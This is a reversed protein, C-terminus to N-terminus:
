SPTRSGEGEAFRKLARLMRENEARFAGLTRPVLLGVPGRPSLQLIRLLHVSDAGPTLTHFLRIGVTGFVRPKMTMPQEFNLQTPPEYGTVRGHRIGMPSQEVYTTGLAIPDTSIETTGRFASSPSLWRDYARLDALLGFVREASARIETEFRLEIM